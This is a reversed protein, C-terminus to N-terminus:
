GLRPEASTGALAAQSARRLFAEAREPDPSLEAAERWFAAAERVAGIALAAQAAEDLLPLARDRDGAAARHRAIWAILPAPEERELEDAVRAHLERRRSALLGSYAADRILAHGFRWMDAEVPVILASDALEQVIDSPLPGGLVAGAMSGRFRMGIVSAVGLVDRAAASLADIRVGLVARLTVPLTSGAGDSLTLRGAQVSLTGDALFARVTETVFLPNGGTREHIQRADGADLAARAVITALQGSEPERLGGLRVRRVLETAAWPPAPGPRMAGLIVLPLSATRQVLLALMPASSHDIWHLDDVVVVRPGATEVVRDIYREAVDQLSRAVEAPDDPMHAAEAEWGTFDAERAIAAVAGGYRRATEADIDDTFLMRRAFSGSDTGHEDAFAQALVRAFRYPEGSGYSVNETWTWALGAERAIPEAELLLRSKGIGAEGEILVAGGRGDRGCREIAERVLALEDARGVLPGRSAAPPADWTEFVSEREVSYVHVSGAHGRLIVSGRDTVGLRNRAARVTAEDVLIEGPRALSQIRAATVIAPGTLRSDELPGARRMAAVEGTAIGIRVELPDGGEVERLAGRISLACLAARIADDDHTVPWGFVAFIADGIFKERTGGLREVAAGMAALASSVRAQVDEPDFDAVMRVYDVIDAFLATVIRRDGGEPRERAVGTPVATANAAVPTGCQECFRATPNIAAGCADCQV